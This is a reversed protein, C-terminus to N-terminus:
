WQSEGAEPDYMEHVIKNRNIILEEVSPSNNMARSIALMMAKHHTRYLDKRDLDPNIAYEPAILIM